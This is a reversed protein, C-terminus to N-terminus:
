QVFAEFVLSSSVRFEISTNAITKGKAKKRNKEEEEIREKKWTMKDRTDPLQDYLTFKQKCKM